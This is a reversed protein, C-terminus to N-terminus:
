VAICPFIRHSEPARLIIDELIINISNQSIPWIWLLEFSQTSYHIIVTHIYWNFRKAKHEPFLPLFQVSFLGAIVVLVPIMTWTYFLVVPLNGSSFDFRIHAFPKFTFFPLCALNRGERIRGKTNRM